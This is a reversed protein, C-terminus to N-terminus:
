KGFSKSKETIRNRLAESAYLIAHRKEPCLALPLSGVLLTNSTAATSCSLTLPASGRADSQWRTLMRYMVEFGSAISTRPHDRIRGTTSYMPAM